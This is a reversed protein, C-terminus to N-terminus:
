GGRSESFIKGRGGRQFEGRGRGRNQFEGSGRGREFDGRGRGRSPISRGADRGRGRDNNGRGRASGDHGNLGAGTKGDRQFKNKLYEQRMQLGDEEDPLVDEDFDEEEESESEGGVFFSSIKKQKNETEVWQRSGEEITDENVDESEVKKLDLVKVLMEGSKKDIKGTKSMESAEEKNVAGEQTMQLANKLSTVFLEEDGSDTEVDSYNAPDDKDFVHGADKFIDEETESDNAESIRKDKHQVIGDDTDTESDINSENDKDDESDVNGEEDKDDGSDVNSEEDEDDGSDVNSEEDQDDSINGGDQIVNSDEKQTAIKSTVDSSLINKAKKSFDNQEILNDSLEANKVPKIGLEQKNPDTKKRKKGLSRLLKPVEKEWHPYKQRFEDLVRKVAKHEGARVFVRVKLNFKQTLTEQKTVDVFTQNNVVIWRSIMDKNARKLISIEEVFRAVKRENKSKEQDNGCKKKKLGAVQRALQHILHVKAQSICPRLSVILTNLSEKNM